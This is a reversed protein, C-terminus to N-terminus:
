LPLKLTSTVPHFKINKFRCEYMEGQKKVCNAKKHEYGINQIVINNFDTLDGFVYNVLLEKEQVIFVVDVIPIESPNLAIKDFKTEGQYVDFSGIVIPPIVDMALSNSNAYNTNGALDRVELLVEIEPVPEIEFSTSGNIACSETDLIETYKLNQNVFINIDYIGTCNKEDSGTTDTISYNVTVLNEDITSNIIVQPAVADLFYEMECPVSNDLAKITKYGPTTLPAFYCTCKSYDGVCSCNSLEESVNIQVQGNNNYTDAQFNENAAVIGNEQMAGYIEYRQFAFVPTLSIILFIMFFAIIKKYSLGFVGM